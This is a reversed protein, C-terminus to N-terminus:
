IQVFVTRERQESSTIVESTSGTIKNLGYRFRLPSGRELLLDSSVERVAGEVLQTDSDVVQGSEDLSELTVLMSTLGAGQITRTFVLKVPEVGHAGDDMVANGSDLVKWPFEQVEWSMDTIAWRLKFQDTAPDPDVVPVEITRPKRDSADFTEEHYFRYGNKEYLLEANVERVDEWDVAPVLRIKRMGRFPGPVSLGEDSRSVVPLTFHTSKMHYTIQVDYSRLDPSVPYVLWKRSSKQAQTFSFTQSAVFQNAKDEYRLAVDIQDTDAWDFEALEVNVSLPRFENSPHIVLERQATVDRKVLVRERSDIWPLDKLFIRTEYRYQRVPDNRDILVNFLKSAENPAAFTWGETHIIPGNVHPQYTANVVVKEIGLEEWNGTVGIEARLENFFPDDLNVSRFLQGLQEPEIQKTLLSLSGQPGATRNAAQNVRFDFTAKKREDQHVFKLSFTLAFGPGNGGGAAGGGAAPARGEMSRPGAEGEKVPPPTGEQAPATGGNAPPPQSLDRSFRMVQELPNTSAASAKPIELSPKFMKAIIENKLLDMAERRLADAAGPTPDYQTVEIKIAGQERLWELTADLQAGITAYQFGIQAEFRDYVRAYDVEAKVEIAPRMATYTLEYVVGCLGGGHRFSDELLTAGEQSLHLGFLALNDGYLSPKTTGFVKEVFVNAPQDPVAGTAGNEAGLAVLRVTGTHFPVPALLVEGSAFAALKNRTDTLVAEDVGIDVTMTLFGGGIQERTEPPFRPNDTVDRAYKLLQLAPRGTAADTHLRPAPPFYYFQNRNNFDQKIQLQNIFLTPEDDFLM